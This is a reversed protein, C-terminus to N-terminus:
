RVSVLVAESPALMSSAEMQDLVHSYALGGPNNWAAREDDEEAGYAGGGGPVLKRMRPPPGVGRPKVLLPRARAEPTTASKIKIKASSGAVPSLVSPSDPVNNDKHAALPPKPTSLQLNARPTIASRPRSSVKPSSLLGARSTTAPPSAPPM